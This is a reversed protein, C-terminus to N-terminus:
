LDRYGRRWEMLTIYAGDVPDQIHIDGNAADIRFRRWCVNHSAHSEGLYFHWAAGDGAARSEDPTQEVRCVPTVKGRSHRRVGAQWAAVEPLKFLLEKADTRELLAPAPKASPKPKASVSKCGVICAVMLVPCILRRM